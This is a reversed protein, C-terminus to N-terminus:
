PTLVVKFRETTDVLEEFARQGEALPMSTFWGTADIAGTEILELARALDRDVWAYSATVVIQKDAVSFFNIRAEPAGLGVAEIRGGPRVARLALAWTADFGAADIVVDARRGDLHDLLEAEPDDGALPAAGQAAAIELRREVPDTALVASAGQVVAMRVMLAGIPGAGVVLVADGPRVAREVVHVANALPEALTAVDDAVRDDIRVAAYAPVAFREAFAGTLDRGVLRGEACLNTKGERCADCRGCSLIPKLVVREGVRVADVDDGAAVITGVAEHGM